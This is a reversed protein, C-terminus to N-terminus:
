FPEVAKAQKAKLTRQLAAKYAAQHHGTKDRIAAVYGPGYGLQALQEELARIETQDNSEVYRDRSTNGKPNKAAWFGRKRFVANPNIAPRAEGQDIKRWFIAEFYSLFLDVHRDTLRPDLSSRCGPLESIIELSNRYEADDIGAQAQARKLLIQQARSLM